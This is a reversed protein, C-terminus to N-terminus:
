TAATPQKDDNDVPESATGVPLTIRMKCIVGSPEFLIDTGGGFQALARSLLRGFGQKKPSSVPPGQRERCDIELLTGTVRSNLLVMGSPVSLSGYKASNTALEHVLLAISLAYKPPLQVDPGQIVVRSTVYPGLQTKAIDHVFAGRGNAEEILQDTATLAALRSM